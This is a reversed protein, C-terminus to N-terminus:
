FQGVRQIFEGGAKASVVYATPFTGYVMLSPGVSNLCALSSMSSFTRAGVPWLGAQQLGELCPSSQVHDPATTSCVVTAVTTTPSSANRITPRTPTRQIPRLVTIQPAKNTTHKILVNNTDSFVNADLHELVMTVLNRAATRHDRQDDGTKPRDRARRPSFRKRSLSVPMSSSRPVLSSPKRFTEWPTHRRRFCSVFEELTNALKSIVQRRVMYDRDLDDLHKSLFAQTMTDTGAGKGTLDLRKPATNVARQRKLHQFNTPSTPEVDRTGPYTSIRRGLRSHAFTDSADGDNGAPSGFK